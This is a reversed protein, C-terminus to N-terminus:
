MKEVTKIGLLSLGTKITGAVSRILGIRAARVDKGSKLIPEIQYFYNVNKSLDYLYNALYHPSNMDGAKKVAEPFESLKLILELDADKALFKPNFKGPKTKRLISKLRVYTYQLYPASNGELNLMKEWNFTIDSLRNQSLDNYKLAGIGVAEAISKKDRESFDPNKRDIIERAFKVSKGIMEEALVVKGERTAFKKADEGLVMGYKIHVLNTKEKIGLIDAVAFLQEFHLAQQNAVVYLISLPKYKKFRYELSAIDRTFYLTAGDSKQILAPPLNYKELPIILSEGEGKKAIGEALLRVILPKLDKLFFSEAISIDFKVGLTRYTKNFEVLSEKKFWKWLRENEKDGEELKRFEEQGVKGLEPNSEMEKHFRIYLAVLASIPHDEVEKKDGWLRYAAVLKGFQTGWDGLYNWRIVEYGLFEYINAIADGIITNRLHGVHMPKAINPSSYDIVVTGEPKNKLRGWKDKSKIIEKFEEQIADASMWFNIFGPMVVEIKSFMAPQKELLAKRIREAAEIPAIKDRKAALFAANTAFHGRNKVVTPSFEFNDGGVQEAILKKLESLM